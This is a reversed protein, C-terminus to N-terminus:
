MKLQTKEHELLKEKINIWHAFGILKWNKWIVRHCPIILPIPNKSNAMWIARSANPNWINTAIDKYSSSEWYPIKQLEKWVKKQYDTWSPNIKIYFNKRKWEIYELIQKKTEEFFNDNQIYDKNLIFERKWEGTLLELNTIWNEDWVVLVNCFATNFKSYYMIIKKLFNSIM